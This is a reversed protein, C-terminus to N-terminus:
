RPMVEGTLYEVYREEAGVLHVLTRRADGFTGPASSDLLDDDLGACWDLIRLNAWRNHRFMDVLHDSM